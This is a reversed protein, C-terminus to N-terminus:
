HEDILLLVGLYIALAAAILGAAVILRRSDRAIGRSTLALIALGGLGFPVYALVPEANKDTGDDTGILFVVGTSLAWIGALALLGAVVRLRAHSHESKDVSLSHRTM